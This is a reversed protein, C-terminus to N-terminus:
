RPNSKLPKMLSLYSPPVFRKIKNGREIIIIFQKKENSVSRTKGELSPCSSYKAESNKESDVDSNSAQEKKFDEFMPFKKLGTSEAPLTPPSKRKLLHIIDLPSRFNSRKPTEEDEEIEEKVSEMFSTEEVKLSTPKKKQKSVPTKKKRLSPMFRFRRLYLVLALVPVLSGIIFSVPIFVALKWVMEDEQDDDLTETTLLASSSPPPISSTRPVLTSEFGKTSYELNTTSATSRSFHDFHGYAELCEM